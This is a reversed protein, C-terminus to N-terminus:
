KDEVIDITVENDYHTIVDQIPFEGQETNIVVEADMNWSGQLKEVLEFVKM